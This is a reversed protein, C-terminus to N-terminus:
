ADVSMATYEDDDYVVKCVDGKEVDGDEIQKAVAKSIVFDDDGDELVNDGGLEDLQLPDVRMVRYRQWQPAADRARQKVHGAIEDWVSM